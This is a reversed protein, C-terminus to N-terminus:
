GDIHLSKQWLDAATVNANHYRARNQTIGGVNIARQPCYEICSMCGACNDGIVARGNIIEINGRPCLKACQGCAICMVSVNMKENILRNLKAFSASELANFSRKPAKKASRRLAKVDAAIRRAAEDSRAQAEKRSTFPITLYHPFLWIASCHNSIGSWYDLGVISDIVHLGCGMYAAYQVVGFKYANPAVRIARIHSEVDAPLGGGHCPFVFGVREYPTADTVTPFARMMVIDTDGLGEAIKRAMDLCNGSASYCYIINSM